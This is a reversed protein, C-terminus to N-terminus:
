KPKVTFSMGAASAFHFAALTSISGVSFGFSTYRGRVPRANADLHM